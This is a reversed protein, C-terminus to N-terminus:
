QVHILHNEGHLYMYTYVWPFDALIYMNQQLHLLLPLFIRGLSVLYGEFQLALDASLHTGAAARQLRALLCERVALGIFFVYM